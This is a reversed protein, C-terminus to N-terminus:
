KIESITLFQLEYESLLYEVVREFHLFNEENWVNDNHTGNIHSQFMFTDGYLSLSEPENIGDCGEFFHCGWNIGKNHEEHGAVWDFQSSIADASQQNVGWGPARFGKPTYGCSKWLDMSEQLRQQAPGYQLELFEMEGIGDMECAHFHGHNSLEIWDYQKWFDVFEKTIPYKGHYNSPTFLNFKVGYKKNLQSLYEVQIDGEVGWGQEPHIDDIAVIVNSM